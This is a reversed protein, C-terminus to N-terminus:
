ENKIEMLKNEILYIITKALADSFNKDYINHEFLRPETIFFSEESGTPTFTDCYYNIIYQINKARSKKINLWFCNFPENKKTDIIAPLIEILEDANYAPYKTDSNKGMFYRTYIIKNQYIKGDIIGYESLIYSYDTEKNIGLEKLKKANEFSVPM